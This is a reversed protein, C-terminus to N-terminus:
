RQIDRNDDELLEKYRNLWIGHLRAASNAALGVSWLAIDNQHERIFSPFRPCRHTQVFHKLELCRM